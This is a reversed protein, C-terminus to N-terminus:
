HQVVDLGINMLRCTPFADINRTTWPPDCRRWIHTSSRGYRPLTGSAPWAVEAVVGGDVQFVIM